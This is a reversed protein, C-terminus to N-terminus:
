FCVRTDALFFLKAGLHCLEPLLNGHMLGNWSIWIIAITIVWIVAYFCIIDDQAYFGFFYGLDFGLHDVALFTDDNRHVFILMSGDITDVCGNLVACFLAPEVNMQVPTEIVGYEGADSMCSFEETM